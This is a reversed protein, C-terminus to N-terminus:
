IFGFSTNGDAYYNLASYFVVVRYVSTDANSTYICADTGYNLVPAFTRNSLWLLDADTIPTPIDVPAPYNIDADTAWCSMVPCRQSTYNWFSEYTCQGRYYINIAGLDYKPLASKFKSANNLIGNTYLSMTWQIGWNRPRTSTTPVTNLDTLIDNLVNWYASFNNQLFDSSRSIVGFVDGLGETIATITM